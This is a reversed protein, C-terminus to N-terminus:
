VEQRPCGLGVFTLAAWSSRFDQRLEENEAPGLGIKRGGKPFQQVSGMDLSTAGCLIHINGM